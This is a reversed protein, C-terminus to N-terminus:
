LGHLFEALGTGFKVTFWVVGVKLPRIVSDVTRFKYPLDVIPPNANTDPSELFNPVEIKEVRDYLGFDLLAVTILDRQVFSDNGRALYKRRVQQYRHGLLSSLM